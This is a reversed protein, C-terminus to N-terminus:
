FSGDCEYNEHDLILRQNAHYGGVLQLLGTEVDQLCCVGVDGHGHQLRTGILHLHQEGVYVHRVGHVTQIEGSLDM